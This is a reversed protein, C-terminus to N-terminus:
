WRPLPVGDVYIAVSTVGTGEFSYWGPPLVFRQMTWTNDAATFSILSAGAYVDYQTGTRTNSGQLKVTASNFTGIMAITVGIESLSTVEFLGSSGTTTVTDFLKM